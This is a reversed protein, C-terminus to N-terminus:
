FTRLYNIFKRCKIYCSLETDCKCTGALSDKDQALDVWDMSGCDLDQIHRLNTRGAVGQEELHAKERLNGCGL